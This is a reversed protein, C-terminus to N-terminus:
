LWDKLFLRLKRVAQYHNAKAAGTTIGMIEGIEGFTYGEYHRLIFTMRQREPLRSLAKDIAVKMQVRKGVADTTAHQEQLPFTVRRNRHFSICANVTIRYVWTFLKSREHFKHLHHYVKIFVEQCLDRADAENRTYRYCISYVPVRYKEFLRDFAGENGDKFSRVLIADEKDCM